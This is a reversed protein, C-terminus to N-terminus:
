IASILKEQVSTIEDLDSKSIHTYRKTMALSAHDTLEQVKVAPVNALLMSTNFFHRWSHFTLGRSKQEDPTIGLIGLARKFAASLTRSAIPKKGGNTSFLYGDGCVAKFTKLEDIIKEPVPITRSKHNKTSTYGYKTHQGFVVIHKDLVYEGKLGVLESIRMGTCAALKSMFCYMYKDWYMEWNEGFLKQIDGAGLLERNKRVEKLMKVGKCPNAIIYEKRVAWSLMASLCKIALNGTSNSLGRDPFSLLWSDIMQSTIADLKMAGFKPMIHNKVMMAATVPYSASIEKRTRQSKLYESKKVDWFGDAFERFTPVGVYKYKLLRGEKLLTNCYERAAAKTSQGTSHGCVRKGTKDYCRYYFVTKGGGIKRRYISYSSKYRM